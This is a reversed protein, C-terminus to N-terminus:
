ALQVITKEKTCLGEPNNYSAVSVRLCLTGLGGHVRDKTRDLQCFVNQGHRSAEDDLLVMEERRVWYRSAVADCKSRLFVIVDM